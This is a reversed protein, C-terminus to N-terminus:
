SGLTGLCVYLRVQSVHSAVNCWESGDKYLAEFADFWSVVVSQSAAWETVERLYREQNVANPVALGNACSGNSPWGTESIWM